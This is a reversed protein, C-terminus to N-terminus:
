EDLLMDLFSSEDLMVNPQEVIPNQVIPDRVVHDDDFSDYEIPSNNIPIGDDEMLDGDEFSDYDRGNTLKFQRRKEM